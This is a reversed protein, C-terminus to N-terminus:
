EAETRTATMAFEGVLRQGTGADLSELYESWPFERRLGFHFFYCQGAEATFRLTRTPYTRWPPWWSDNQVSLERHGPQVHFVCFSDNGPVAYVRTVKSGGSSLAEFLRDGTVRYCTTRNGWRRLVYVSAKGPPPRFLRAQEAAQKGALPGCSCGGVALAMIALLLLTMCRTRWLM